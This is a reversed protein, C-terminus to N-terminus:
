TKHCVMRNDQHICITLSINNPNMQMNISSVSVGKLHLQTQIEGKIKELVDDDKSDEIKQRGFM